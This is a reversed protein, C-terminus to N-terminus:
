RALALISIRPLYDEITHARRRASYAGVAVFLLLFFWFSAAILNM